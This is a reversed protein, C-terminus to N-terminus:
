ARSYAKVAAVDGSDVISACSGSRSISEGPASGNVHDCVEAVQTEETVSGANGQEGCGFGGIYDVMERGLIKVRFM